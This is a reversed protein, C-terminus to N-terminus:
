RPELVWAPIRVAVSRAPLPKTVVAGAGITTGEGVDAM